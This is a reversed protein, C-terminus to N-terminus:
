VNSNSGYLPMTSLFKDESSATSGEESESGSKSHYEMDQQSLEDSESDHETHHSMAEKLTWSHQCTNAAQMTGQTKNQLIEM